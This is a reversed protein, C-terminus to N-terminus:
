AYHPDSGLIQPFTEGAALKEAIYDRATLVRSPEDGEIDATEYQQDLSADEVEEVPQMTIEREYWERAQELTEAAVYDCDDFKWVQIVPKDNTRHDTM